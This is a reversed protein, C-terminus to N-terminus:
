RVKITPASSVAASRLVTARKLAAMCLEPSLNMSGLCSSMPQSTKMRAKGM